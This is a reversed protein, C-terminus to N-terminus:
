QDEATGWVRLILAGKLVFRERHESQSLRYLFRELGYYQLVEQFPRRTAKAHNSLRARVSAAIDKTM